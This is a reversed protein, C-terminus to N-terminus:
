LWTLMKMGRADQGTSKCFNSGQPLNYMAVQFNSGSGDPAGAGLITGSINGTNPLEATFTVGINTKAIPADAAAALSAFAAAAVITSTYRM